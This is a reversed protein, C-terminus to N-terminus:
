LLVNTQKRHCADVRMPPRAPSRVRHVSSLSFDASRLRRKTPSQASPEAKTDYQPGKLWSNRCKMTVSLNVASKVTRMICYPVPIYITYTRKTRVFLINDSHIATQRENDTAPSLLAVYVTRCCFSHADAKINSTPQARAITLDLAASRSTGMWTCESTHNLANCFACHNASDNTALIEHQVTSIYM